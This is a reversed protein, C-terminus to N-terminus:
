GVLIRTATFELIKGLFRRRYSRGEPGLRKQSYTYVGQAFSERWALRVMDRLPM